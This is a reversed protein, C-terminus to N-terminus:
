STCIAEVKLMMEFRALSVLRFFVGFNFLCSFNYLLLIAVKRIFCTNTHINFTVACSVCDLVYMRNYIPILQM